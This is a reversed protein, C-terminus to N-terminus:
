SVYEEKNAIFPDMEIGRLALENNRRIISLRRCYNKRKKKVFIRM